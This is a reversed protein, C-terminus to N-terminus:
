PLGSGPLQHQRTNVGVEKRGVFERQSGGQFGFTVTLEEHSVSRPFTAIFARGRKAPELQETGGPGTVSVEEVESGIAGLLVRRRVVKDLEKDFFAARRVAFFLRNDVVDGCEGAQEPDEGQFALRPITQGWRVCVFGERRTPHAPEAVAEWPPRGIVPDDSLTRRAVPKVMDQAGGRFFGRLTLEDPDVYGPLAVLAVEGRRRAEVTTTGDPGVLEVEKLNHGQAVIGTAAQGRRGETGVGVIM